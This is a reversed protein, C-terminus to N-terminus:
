AITYRLHVTANKCDDQNEDPKNNFQITPPDVLGWDGVSDGNPIEADVTSSANLLTYDTAECTGASVGAGVISAIAATVTGIFVPDANLNTFTGSLNQAAVGPGMAAVVSMQSAFLMMEPGAAAMAQGAGNDVWQARAVGAGGVAVIITVAIITARKKFAHMLSGVTVNWPM